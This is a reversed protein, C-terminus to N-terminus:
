PRSRRARSWSRGSACRILRRGAGPRARGAARRGAGRVRRKGEARYLAAAARWSATPPRSTEGHLRSAPASSPPTPSSREAGRGRSCSSRPLSPPAAARRDPGRAPAARRPRQPRAGAVRRRRRGRGGRGSRLGRRGRRVPGPRDPGAGAPGGDDLAPLARGDARAARYDRVLDREAAAPDGALLEVTSSDLATSAGLVGGGIETLVARARRTCSVPRPSTGRADGRAARARVTRAGRNPPRRAAIARIEDAVSSRRPAGADPRLRVGDDLRGRKAAGAAQRGRAPRVRDSARVADAAHATASPPRTCRASSAGPRQSARSTASSSSCRSRAREAERLAREGGHARRATCSCSCVASTPRPRSGTTASRRPPPSRASSCRARRPRVRRPGDAGRRPRAPARAPRPRARAHLDVARRLLGAAAHMDGRYFARQGAGALREGARRGLTAATTTSRGSSPWTAIRRSSTTPPSRPTSPARPRRERPRGVGVFREHLQARTRKLLRRYVADRVLIHEFQYANDDGMIPPHSRIFRRREVAALREPVRPACRGRRRARRGGGVPVRPGGGVGARARGARGPRAPRPPGGAAGPDDAARRPRRGPDADDLM